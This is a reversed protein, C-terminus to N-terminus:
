MCRIRYSPGHAGKLQATCWGEVLPGSRQGSVTDAGALHYSSFCSASTSGSLNGCHDANWLSNSFVGQQCCQTSLPNDCQAASRLVWKVILAL